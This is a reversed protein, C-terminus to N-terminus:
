ITLMFLCTCHQLNKKVYHLHGEGQVTEEKKLLPHYLIDFVSQLAYLMNSKGSANAGYIIGLKNLRIGNGMDVSAISDEEDRCVFSLTQKNRISKYNDAWFERIM